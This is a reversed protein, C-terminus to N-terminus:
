GPDFAPCIELEMTQQDPCECGEGVPTCAEKYVDKCCCTSTGATNTWSGFKSYVCKAYCTEESESAEASCEGTSSFGSGLSQSYGETGCWSNCDVSPPSVCKCSQCVGEGYCDADVECEEPPTVIMDGCYLQVEKTVCKCSQCEQSSGCASTDTGDCEEDGEVEDNGCYPEDDEEEPEICTCEQCTKGSPCFETYSAGHDCEEPPTVIGDGCLGEIADEECQCEANCSSGEPCTDPQGNGIDCEENGGGPGGAPSVVGDGCRPTILKTCFCGEPDCKAREGYVAKCDDICVAPPPGKPVNIVWTNGACTPEPEEKECVCSSPNCEYGSGLSNCDDTCYDMGPTFTNNEAGTNQACSTRIDIGVCICGPMVCTLGGACTVNTECEEWPQNIVGDGCFVFPNEKIDVYVWDSDAKGDDDTTSLTVVYCGCEDYTHAAIGDFSDDCTNDVIEGGDPIGDNNGKTPKDNWIEHCDEDDGFDWGYSALKRAGFSSFAEFDSDSSGEGSFVVEVEIEGVISDPTDEEGCSPVFVELIKVDGEDTVIVADTVPTYYRTLFRGFQVDGADKWWIAGKDTPFDLGSQHYITPSLDNPADYSYEHIPDTAARAQQYPFYISLGYANPFAAGHHEDIIVAGGKELKKIIAPAQGKGKVLGNALIVQAFHKIDIFDMDGWVPDNGGRAAAIAKGEPTEDLDYSYKKIDFGIIGGFTQTKMRSSLVGNQVNDKNDKVLSYDFLATRTGLTYPPCEEAPGPPTLMGRLGVQSAFINIDSNLADIGSLQIASITDVGNSAGSAVMQKAYDKASQTPNKNLRKILDEYNWNVSKRKTPPEAGKTINTGESGVMISSGNKVQTAVEVSAMLPADFALIDLTGNLLSPMKGVAGQLESMQMADNGPETDTLLGSPLAPNSKWGDGDGWLVLVYNEAPFCQASWKVFSTLTGASGMSTEPLIMMKTSNIKPTDDKKIFLRTPSNNLEGRVSTGSAASLDVQVVVTSNITSGIKEMENIDELAEPKLNKEAAMYVMFTWNSQVEFGLSRGMDIVDISSNYLKNKDRDVVIDYRGVDPIDWVPEFFTGDKEVKINEIKETVDTLNYGDSWSDNNDTVYIAIDEGPVFGVGKAYIKQPGKFLDSINNEDYSDVKPIAVGWNIRQDAADRAQESDSFIGDNDVDVIVDYLGADKRKIDGWILTTDFEGEPTIQVGEIGGSEDHLKMGDKWDTTNTVYISSGQKPIFGKGFAYISENPAQGVAVSVKSDITKKEADTCVPKDESVPEETPIFVSKIRKNKDSSEVAQVRFSIIAEAKMQNLTATDISDKVDLGRSKQYAKWANVEKVEILADATISKDWFTKLFAEVELAEDGASNLRVIEGTSMADDVDHFNIQDKTDVNSHFIGDQDVDVVIDYFGANLSTLNEWLLMNTFTGSKDATVNNLGDISVDALRTGNKLSANHKIVYVDLINFISYVGGKAYVKERPVFVKKMTKSDDTAAVAHVRFSRVADDSIFAMDFQEVIGNVPLHRSKEYEKFAITTDNTFNGTVNVKISQSNLFAQLVSVANGTMGQHVTPTSTVLRQLYKVDVEDRSDNIPDFPSGDQVTDAMITYRNELSKVYIFNTPSSMIRRPSFTGNISTFVTRKKYVPAYGIRPDPTLYLDVKSRNLFGGGMVYVYDDTSTFIKKVTDNADASSIAQVTFGSENYYDVLDTKFQFLTSINRDVVANYRGDGGNYYIWNSAGMWMASDEIVGEDNAVFHETYGSVDTDNLNIGDKWNTENYKVVYIDIPENSKLGEVIVEVNQNTFDYYAENDIAADVGIAPGIIIAYDQGSTFSYLDYSRVTINYFGDETDNIILKEVNNKSDKSGPNPTSVGNTMMNGKYIIGSPSEAKLDLDNVLSGDSVFAGLEDMWVLTVELPHLQSARIEYYIYDEKGDEKFPAAEDFIVTNHTGLPFLAKSLNLRGFGEDSNPIGGTTHNEDGAAPMDQAGQILTAKILAATPNATKMKKAYYERTLVATGAVLPTAMSTGSLYMYNPAWAALGPVVGGPLANGTCGPQCNASRVSLIWTAPAIIDPKFRDGVAPGRGSSGYMENINSASGIAGGGVWNRLSESGGVILANKANAEESITKEEPGNNHAAFIILFDKHAHAYNDIAKTDANYGYTTRSGWSNTMIKPNSSHGYALDFLKKLDSPVGALGAGTGQLSMMVLNAGPATGQVTGGSNAGNGLVSGAVHTGHGDPDSWQLRTNANTPNITFSGFAGTVRGRFDQNITLFNGNDLGTDAVVITQGAGTLGYINGVGDDPNVVHLLTSAVNNALEHVPVQQVFEVEPMQIIELIDKGSVNAIEVKQEEIKKANGFKKFEQANADTFTLIWINYTGNMTGDLYADKFFTSFKYAPQYIEVYRVFSYDRIQQLSLSSKFLIADRPVAGLVEGSNLLSSAISKNFDKHFQIVFYGSVNDTRLEKPVPNAENIPDFTGYKTVINFDCADGKNDDDMDEQEPNPDNPCNDALNPVGDGDLDDDCADGIKDLDLDEQNPNSINPCNDQSDPVGDNDSDQIFPEPEQPMIVFVYLLSISVLVILLIWLLNGQKDFM